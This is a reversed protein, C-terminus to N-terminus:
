NLTFVKIRYSICKIEFVSLTERLFKILNLKEALLTITISPTKVRYKVLVTPIIRTNIKSEYLHIKPM